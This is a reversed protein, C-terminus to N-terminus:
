RLYQTVFKELQAPEIHGMIKKRLIGERDIIFITPFGFVDYERSTMSHEDSQLTFTVGNNKAYSEVAERTDAVNIALIALGNDKNRVYYPELLKLKDGCCSNTWFYLVVVKGKLQKLSIYEGHIDAGSIEPPIEGTKVGQNKDCGVFFVLASLLLIAICFNAFYINSPRFRIKM